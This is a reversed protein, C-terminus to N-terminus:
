RTSTGRLRKKIPAAAEGEPERRKRSLRTARQAHAEKCRARSEEAARARKQRAEEKARASARTARGGTRTDTAPKTQRGEGGASRVGGRTKARRGRRKPSEWETDPAAGALRPSVRRGDEEAAQADRAADQKGKLLLKAEMRRAIGKAEANLYSVPLWQLQISGWQGAWRVQVDLSRGQRGAPHRVGTVESVVWLGGRRARRGEQADEKDAAALTADDCRGVCRAAMCALAGLGRGRRGAARTPAGVAVGGVGGNYIVLAQVTAAAVHERVVQEGEQVRDIGM